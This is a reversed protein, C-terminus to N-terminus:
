CNYWNKCDDPKKTTKESFYACWYTWYTKKNKERYHFARIFGGDKDCDIKDYNKYIKESRTVSMIKLHILFLKKLLWLILLHYHM